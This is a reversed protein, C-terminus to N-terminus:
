IDIRRFDDLFLSRTRTTNKQTFVIFFFPSNKGAEKATISGNYIKDNM